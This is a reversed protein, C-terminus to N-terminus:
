GNQKMIEAIQSRNITRHRILAAAIALVAAAHDLLLARTEARALDIYADSDAIERVILTAVARASNLDHTTGPLLEGCFLEEATVGALWACVHAHAEELESHLAGPMLLALQSCISQVTETNPELDAVNSWTYGHHGNIFNITSGEVSLLMYCAVVHGAEHAAVRHEFPRGVKCWSDLDATMERTERVSFTVVPGDGFPEDGSESEHNCQKRTAM